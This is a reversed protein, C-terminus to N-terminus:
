AREMRERVKRLGELRKWGREVEERKVYYDLGDILACTERVHQAREELGQRITKADCAEAEDGARRACEEARFCADRAVLLWEHSLELWKRQPPAGCHPCHGNGTGRHPCLRRNMTRPWLSPV